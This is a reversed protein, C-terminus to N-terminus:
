AAVGVVAKAKLAQALANFRAEDSQAKADAIAKQANAYHEYDTSACATMVMAILIILYRM